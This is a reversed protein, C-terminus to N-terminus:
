GELVHSLPLGTIAAVVAAVHERGVIPRGVDKYAGARSAEGCALDLSKAALAPLGGNLFRASLKAAAQRADATIQVGYFEELRDGIAAAIREAADRGPQKVPVVEFLDRWRPMARSLVDLGDPTTSGTFLLVGEALADGLTKLVDDPSDALVHMDQIYLVVEARVAEDLIGPLRRLFESRLGSDVALDGAPLALVEADALHRPCRGGHCRAAFGDMVASRGVGPAGVLLPAPLPHGALLSLVTDIETERAVVPPLMGEGAKSSLDVCWIDLLPGPVTGSRRDAKWSCLQEMGSQVLLEGVVGGGDMFLARYLDRTGIVDRTEGLVTEYARVFVDQVQRSMRLPGEGAQGARRPPIVSLVLRVLTQAMIGRAKCFEPIPGVGTRVMAAFLHPSRIESWGNKRALSLAERVLDIVERLLGVEVFDGPLGSGESPPRVVRAGEVPAARALPEKAAGDRVLEGLGLQRLVTGVVGGGDSFLAAYLDHEGALGAGRNSARTRARMLMRRVSTSLGPVHDGPVPKGPAPVVSLVLRALQSTDVDHASSLELVPKSGLAVMAAFVHPTEINGSGDDTAMRLAELMVSCAGQDFREGNVPCKPASGTAQIAPSAAGTALAVEGKGYGAAADGVRAGHDPGDVVNAGDAEERAEEDEAALMLNPDGYYRYAAWGYDPAGDFYGNYSKRRMSRVAAALPTTSTANHFVNLACFAAARSTLVLTPALVTRAAGRAFVEALPRPDLYIEDRGREEVPECANIFVFRAQSGSGEIREGSLFGDALVLGSDEERRCRARGFYYLGFVDPETLAELVAAKTADEGCLLINTFGQREALRCLKHVHNTCYVASSGTGRCLDDCPDVVFLMKTAPLIPSSGPEPLDHTLHCALGMNVSDAEVEKRTELVEWPIRSAFPGSLDLRPNAEPDVLALLGQGPLVLDALKAPIADFGGDHSKWGERDLALLGASAAAYDELCQEVGDVPVVRDEVLEPAGKAARQTGYRLVVTGNKNESSGVAVTQVAISDM